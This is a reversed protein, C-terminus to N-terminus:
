DRRLSHSRGRGRPSGHLVSTQYAGRQEDRQNCAKSQSEGVAFMAKREEAHAAASLGYTLAIALVGLSFRFNTKKM